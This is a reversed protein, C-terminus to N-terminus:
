MMLLTQGKCISGDFVRVTAVVGRYEDLYSDLILAKLPADADGKPPSVLFVIAELLDHIGEGTKGSVCM